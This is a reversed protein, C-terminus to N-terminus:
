LDKVQKEYIKCRMYGKCLKYNDPLDIGCIGEAEEWNCKVPDNLECVSCWVANYGKFLSNINTCKGKQMFKCKCM